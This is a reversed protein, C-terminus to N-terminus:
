RVRADIIRQWNPLEGDPKGDSGTLYRRTLEQSDLDELVTLGHRSAFETAEDPTWGLVFPEGIAALGKAQSAAAYLGTYDGEVVRRLVYDYVVMSGSLSLRRIFEFTASNGAENVYMSVGELIFLTKQRSDYGVGPLVKELSQTDFDIPAYHVFPPLVGFVRTVAQQKASSIDPLDVEFFELKPYANHFRYARSDFGAGLVVVQTVGESAAKELQADIHQTRANVYFFGAYAEPNDDMVDRAAEYERPLRVPDCFKSALLDRSRLKPDPHQAAIARYECVAKATWSVAGPPVAFARTASLNGLAAAAFLIVGLRNM